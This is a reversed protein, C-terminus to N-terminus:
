GAGRQRLVEYMAVAGAVSVNLSEVRGQLPIRILFDCTERVLRGIGEGESGLVLGVHGKFDATTYLTADPVAELGYFWLGHEQLLKMARVLNTVRAVQVHETAGASARVVADTIEVARDVPILVGTVGVADATRLLAGVNHPDMLHDLILWLQNKTGEAKSIIADLEMYPYGGAELVVGQHHGGQALRDLERRDSFSVEAGAARASAILEQLEPAQRLSDQLLLRTIRRRRARLVEQVPQRGYVCAPPPPPEFRSAGQSQAPRHRM